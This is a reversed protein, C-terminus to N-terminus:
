LMDLFVLMVDFIIVRVNEFSCWLHYRWVTIQSYRLNRFWGRPWQKSPYEEKLFFGGKIFGSADLVVSSGSL